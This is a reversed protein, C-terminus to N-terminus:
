KTILDVAAKEVRRKWKGKHRRAAPMLFPFPGVRQGSKWHTFGKEMLLGVLGRRSSEVGFEAGVGGPVRGKRLVKTDKELMGTRSRWPHVRRADAAMEEASKATVIIGVRDIRKGAETLRREFAVLESDDIM